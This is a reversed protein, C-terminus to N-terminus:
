VSKRFIFYFCTHMGTPHTGVSATAMQGCGWASMGWPLCWGRCWVWGRCGRGEGVGAHVSLIFSMGTFVIGVGSCPRYFCFHCPLLCAEIQTLTGVSWPIWPFNQVSKGTLSILSFCPTRLWFWLFLNEFWPFNGCNTFVDFTTSVHIHMTKPKTIYPHKSKPLTDIIFQIIFQHKQLGWHYNSAM